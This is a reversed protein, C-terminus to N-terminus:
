SEIFNGFGLFELSVSSAFVLVAYFIENVSFEEIELVIISHDCVSRPCECLLSGFHWLKM